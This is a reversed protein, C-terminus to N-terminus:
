QCHAFFRSKSQTRKVHCGWERGGGKCHIDIDFIDSLPLMYAKKEKIQFLVFIFQQKGLNPLTNHKCFSEQPSHTTVTSRLCMCVCMWCCCCCVEEEDEPPECAGRSVFYIMFGITALATIYIYIYIYKAM